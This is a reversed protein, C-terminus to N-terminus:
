RWDGAAVFAAWYFPLTSLGKARRERLITLSAERMAAATDLRKQLREHYLARMWQRTAEDDVSWLSMIVTHAGAVQFARRLGLVGEGTKVQGVGTACASLVAWEVGGLDLSAVEQATLVGDDEDPAATRRRNAGALALGSLLLPNEPPTVANRAISANALGGVGRTGAAAFSCTDELFFGHTALHLVRYRRAEKKFTAESADHGVLVRAGADDPTGSTRWLGSLERVEELTGKLPSFSMAQVDGCAPAPSRVSDSPTASRKPTSKPQNRGARFLTADDFAPGGLALLGQGVRAADVPNRVLDREASLYHVVTPRDLLYSRQGIPLASFPVLSVAGDPVIFVRSADALHPVLPDWILRRLAAGSERSPHSAGAPPTQAPALAEAAIDSRWQAVLTDIVRASGMPVVVPPQQAGVVFALYSPVIRSSSRTRGNAQPNQVRQSLLTREYRVFSVLASDPALALRVEGLGIRARSREVRFEASQEALAQEALEAERRADEMVASYQTPSLDVAGRVVLNALRQQASISAVWLPDANEVVRRSGQRAAMEDLVLARSRIQSDLAVVANEPSSATLSLILDLGRPRAAAYNLSQREPLSRLMTRLHERGTGEASMANSLASGSDGLNALALALGVQTNAYVPHSIGFVRGRIGLAREYYIRATTYDERRAQLDAFLALVTAYDPADPTDLREWIGVSRTAAAQARTVQGTEMLTSALDALTLAVERHNPGFNKEVIALARELLPLAQIPLGEQRYVKALDTLAIAVYPHNPGGVREHITVARSQERRAAPYDGLNADTVALRSLTNAVLDHWPGYRAEYINLARQFRQRAVAYAGRERLEAAALSYLYSATEHHNPGFNREAIALARERLAISQDLKGLDALTSALYRLSLAVTPHDPRLAREAVAVARESVDRSESLRGEFWLQQALLNLTRAYAPHDASAAEQLVAARRVPPGSADYRGRRQLVLGIEELTRAIHVDQPDLAKEKLRLSRELAEIAEDYRRAASLVAGLHDLAEAVEPSETGTSAERLAVGRKTVDIAQKFEAAASLVDGLNLLSPALQPNELGLIAEKIRLTRTALAITEDESGRGNLVLARVLVDSAIAVQLADDGDSARLIEVAARAAVEAQDYLGATILNGAVSDTVRRREQGTLLAATGGVLVLAYGIARIASCSV